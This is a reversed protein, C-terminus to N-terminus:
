LIVAPRVGDGLRILTVGEEAGWGRPWRGRFDLVLPRRMYTTFTAPDLDQYHSHDVMLIAADAGRLAEQLSYMEPQYPDTVLCTAGMAELTDVLGRTPSERSDETDPKYGWGLVAVRAGPGLHGRAELAMRVPRRDNARLASGIVPPLPCALFWPDVPICHGGVGPGPRLYDVRPHRNAADIVTWVDIGHTECLDALENALAINVARFTNEALKVMEAARLPLRILGGHVMDSYLRVCLDAAADSDVGIIRPNTRIEQLTNGPAAREPCYAVHVGAPLLPAVAEACTGPAVTSEVVVLNGARVHPAISRCASALPGPDMQGDILPTPVCLVFVDAPSPTLAARFGHRIAIWLAEPLGPEEFPPSGVNLAAVRAPVLDVGVVEHHAALLVAQPLGVYGLGVVCVRM